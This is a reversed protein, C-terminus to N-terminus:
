TLEIAAYIPALNLFPILRIGTVIGPAIGILIPIEKEM